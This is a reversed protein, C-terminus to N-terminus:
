GDFGDRFITESHYRICVSFESTNGLGDTATATVWDNDFLTFGTQAAVSLTFDKSTQGSPITVAGAGIWTEGQGHSAPGCSGNLYLDVTYTGPTTPLTGSVSGAQDTGSATALEPFNQGRNALDITQVSDDDNSNVGPTGLDIGLLANNFINNYRILNKQGVDVAIGQGSNGAISNFLVFNGIPADFLGSSDGILHIGAGGNPRNDAGITNNVIVNGHAGAGDLVIGAQTNYAIFNGNISNSDGAVYIGRAGNGADLPIQQGADWDVGVLNNIVQHGSSGSAIIIGSASATAVVNRDADDFGGVADGQTGPGLRIDVGNPNLTHGGILAGFYNGTVTHGSGGQLDVAATTFGSFAIGQIAVSVSSDVNSQVVLGRTVGSGAALIVCIKADFGFSSGNPVSDPESYGDISVTQSLDLEADLTIRQSGCGSPLNFKISGGGHANTYAVADALSGAGSANVNTVTQVSSTVSSEYAGRDVRAGVLRPGGDLDVSPLGGPPSNYGTNIAPSQPSEIPRYNADLKPDNNDTHLNTAPATGGLSGITNYELVLDNSGSNVDSFGSNGYFINNYVNFVPNSSPAYFCAGSATAGANDVVTNNTVEISPVGFEVTFDLACNSGLATNNAVLTDVVRIEGGADFAYWDVRLGGNTADIFADRSILVTGTPMHGYAGTFFIDLANRLTFTIGSITLDGDTAVGDKTTSTAGSDTITTNGVAIGRAACGSTYGGLLESGNAFHTWDAANPAAAGDHWITNKLDYSGQVLKITTPQTQAQNLAAAFTMDQPVCVLTNGVAPLAPLAGALAVFMLIMPNSLTNANM